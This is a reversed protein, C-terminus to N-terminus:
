GAAAQKKNAAKELEATKMNWYGRASDETLYPTKVEAGCKECKVTVKLTNDRILRFKRGACFFCPKMRDGEKETTFTLDQKM